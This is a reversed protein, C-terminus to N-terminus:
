EKKKKKKKKEAVSTERCSLYYSNLIVLLRCIEVNEVDNNNYIFLIM